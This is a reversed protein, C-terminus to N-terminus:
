KIFLLVILVLYIIAIFVYRQTTPQPTLLKRDSWTTWYLSILGIAVLVKLVINSVFVNICSVIVLAGCIVMTRKSITKFGQGLLTFVFTIVIFSFVIWNM